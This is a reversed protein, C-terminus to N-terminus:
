YKPKPWGCWIPATSSRAACTPWRAAAPRPRPSAPWSCRCNTSWRARRRPTTAPSPTSRASAPDKRGLGAAGAGAIRPCPHRRAFDARDRRRRGGALGALRRAHVPRPHAPRDVPRSGAVGPHRARRPLDRRAALAPAPRDGAAARKDRYRGRRLRRNGGSRRHRGRIEVPRAAQAGARSAAQAGSWGSRTPAIPKAEKEPDIRFAAPRRPESM